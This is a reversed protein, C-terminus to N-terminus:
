MVIFLDPFFFFLHIVIESLIAKTTLPLTCSHNIKTPLYIDTPEFGLEIHVGLVM